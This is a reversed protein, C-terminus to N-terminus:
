VLFVFLLHVVFLVLVCLVVGYLFFAFLYVISLVSWLWICHHLVDIIFPLFTRVFLNLIFM